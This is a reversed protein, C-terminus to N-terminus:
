SLFVNKERPEDGIIYGRWDKHKDFNQNNNKWIIDFGKASNLKGVFTIIKEKKKLEFPVKSISQFCIESKNIMLDKFKSKLFFRDRSWKSNFIIKDVNRILYDRDTIQKSGNM